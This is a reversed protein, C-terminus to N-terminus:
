ACHWQSGRALIKRFPLASPEFGLSPQDVLALGRLFSRQVKGMVVVLEDDRLINRYTKMTAEDAATAEIMGSKDDLKFIALKGRQGNIVRM